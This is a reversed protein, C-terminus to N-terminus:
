CIAGVGGWGWVKGSLKFSGKTEWAEGARETAEM